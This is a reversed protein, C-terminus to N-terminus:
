IYSAAEEAAGEIHKLLESDITWYQWQFAELEEFDKESFKERRADQARGVIEQLLAFNYQELVMCMIIIGEPTAEHGSSGKKPMGARKWAALAGDLLGKEEEKVTTGEKSHWDVLWGKLSAMKTLAREGGMFRMIEMMNDHHAPMKTSQTAKSCNNSDTSQNTETSVNPISGPVKSTFHIKQPAATVALGNENSLLFTYRSSTLTM